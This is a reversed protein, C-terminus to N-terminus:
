VRRPPLNVVEAAVVATSLPGFREAVEGGGQPVRWAQDSFAIAQGRWAGVGAKGGLALSPNM